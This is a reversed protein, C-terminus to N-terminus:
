PGSTRFSVEALHIPLATHGSGFVVASAAGEPAVVEQSEAVWNMRCHFSVIQTGLLNRRADRWIVQLRGRAPQDACKATVRNLYSRGAEVPVSQTIPTAATVLVTGDERSDEAEALLWPPSALETTGVLLEESFFILDDVKHVSVPGFGAVKHFSGEVLAAIREKHGRWRSDFILYRAGHKRILSAFSDVDPTSRLEREFTRNYWNAFLAESVLGAALPPALFIVPSGSENLQNVLEVAKRIPARRRVLSEQSQSDFVALVPVDRYNPSASGFFLVNLGLTLAALGLMGWRLTTGSCDCKSIVLGVLASLFLFSPFVYRLFAQFNFVVLFSLLCVAALGAAKWDRFVLAALTTPVLLLVWQYGGAGTSGTMGSTFREAFYVLEYPLNWNLETVFARNRFNEAPYFPSEFIANFFPFVPNGSVLWANLYPIAAVALFLGAACCTSQRNGKSFLAPVRPVLLALVIPVIVLAVAKAAAAFALFLAVLMLQSSRDGHGLLVRFTYLAGALLYASWFPETYLASGLLFTLPTSLLILTGWDAGRESGGMTQVTQRVLQACVVLFAMNVLKAAAEGGLLYGITYAWDALLPMLTWVYRGPDFNWAQNAEVYAPVFLHVALPDYSLEPLLAFAFYTLFFGGLLSREVILHRDHRRQLTQRVLNRVLNILPTRAAVIPLALAISYVWGYNVEFHVTISVASAWLGAGVLVRALESSPPNKRCLGKIVFWGLSWCAAFFFLVSLLPMLGGDLLAISVGLLATSAIYGAQVTIRALAIALAACAMFGLYGITVGPRWFPLVAPWDQQALGFGTVALTGLMSLVILSTITRGSASGPSGTEPNPM